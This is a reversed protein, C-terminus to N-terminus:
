GKQYDQDKRFTEDVRGGKPFMTLKQSVSDGGLWAKFDTLYFRVHAMFGDIQASLSVM